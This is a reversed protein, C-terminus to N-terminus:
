HYTLKKWVGGVRVQLEDGSPADIIPTLEYEHLDTLAAQEALSIGRLKMRGGENVRVLKLGPDSVRWPKNPLGSGDRLSNNIMTVEASNRVLDDAGVSVAVLRILNNMVMVHYPIEGNAGQTCRIARASSTAGARTFFSNMITPNAMPGRLGILWSLPLVDGAINELWCTDVVLKNTGGTPAPGQYDVYILEQDVANTMSTQIVTDRIVTYENKGITIGRGVTPILNCGDMKCYFAVGANGGLRVLGNSKSNWMDVHDLVINVIDGDETDVAYSPFGELSCYHMSVAHPEDLVLGRGAGAAGAGVFSINEFAVRIGSGRVTILDSALDATGGQYTLRTGDTMGVRGAVDGVFRVSKDFVMPVVAPVTTRDYPLAPAYITGGESPLADIADQFTLIGPQTVNLWDRNVSAGLMRLPRVRGGM